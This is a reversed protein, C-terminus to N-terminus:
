LPPLVALTNKKNKQKKHHNYFLRYLNYAVTFSTCPTPHFHGRAQFGVRGGRQDPVPSLHIGNAVHCAPAIDDLPTNITATGTRARSPHEMQRQQRPLPPPPPILDLFCREEM